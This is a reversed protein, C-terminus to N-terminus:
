SGEPVPSGDRMKVIRAPIGAAVAGPPLDRTVVCGAALVCGDGVTVGPLVVVGAGLWVDAGIIVDQEIRPQRMVPTGPEYRYNSATVYVDPGFLADEGILIRGEKDGAWLACNEGIHSRAGIEIREGNRFSVNPALAVGPGIRAKRRPTVHSYNWYHVLRFFHLYPRPDLISGLLRFARSLMVTRQEQRHHHREQVFVLVEWREKRRDIALGARGVAEQQHVVPRGVPRVLEGARERVLALIRYRELTRGPRGLAVAEGGGRLQASELPAQLPHVNLVVDDRLEVRIELEGRHVEGLDFREELTVGAEPECSRIQADTIRVTAHRALRVGAVVHTTGVLEIAPFAEILDPGYGGMEAPVRDVLHHSPHM